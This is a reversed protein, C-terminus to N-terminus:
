RKFLRFLSFVLGMAVGAALGFLAVSRQDVITEVLGNSQGALFFVARINDSHVERTVVFGTRHNNLTVNQGIMMGVNGDVTAETASCIGVSGASVNIVAGHAVGVSSQAISVSQGNVNHVESERIALTEAIVQNANCQSLEVVDGQVSALEAGAKKILVPGAPDTQSDFFQEDM